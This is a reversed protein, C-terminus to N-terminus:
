KEDFILKKKATSKNYFSNTPLPESASLFINCRQAFNIAPYTKEVDSRHMKRGRQNRIGKRFRAIDVNQVLMQRAAM